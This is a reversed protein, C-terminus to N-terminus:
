DSFYGHCRFTGRSQELTPVTRNRFFTLLQPSSSAPKHNSSYTWQGNIETVKRDKLLVQEAMLLYRDIEEDQM